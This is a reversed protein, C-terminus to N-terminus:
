RRPKLTPLASIPTPAFPSSRWRGPPAQNQRRRIPLPICRAVHAVAQPRHGHGRGRGAQSPAPPQSRQAAWGPAGAEWQEDAPSLPKDFLAVLRAVDGDRTEIIEKTSTLRPSSKRLLFRMPHTTDQASHLESALAREVLAQAQPPTLAPLTTPVSQGM